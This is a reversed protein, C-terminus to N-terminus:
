MKKEENGEINFILLFAHADYPFQKNNADEEYKKDEV